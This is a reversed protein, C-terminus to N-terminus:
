VKPPPPLAWEVFYQGDLEIVNDTPALILHTDWRELRPSLGKFAFTRDEIRWFGFGGGPNVEGVLVWVREYPSAGPATLFRQLDLPQAEQEPPHRYVVELANAQDQGPLTGGLYEVLEWTRTGHIGEWLSFDPGGPLIVVTGPPIAQVYRRAQVLWPNKAADALPIIGAGFNYGGLALLLAMTSGRFTRGRVILGRDLGTGLICLMPLLYFLRYFPMQPQFFLFFTFCLVTWWVLVRSIVPPQLRLFLPLHQLGGLLALAGHWLAVGLLAKKALDLAVAEKPWQLFGAYLYDPYVFAAVHSKWVAGLYLRIQAAPGLEEPLQTLYWWRSDHGYSTIWALFEQPTSLGLSVFGFLIYHFLILGFSCTTGIVRWYAPDDLTRSKVWLFYLYLPLMFVMAQHLMVALFVNVAQMVLRKPRFEPDRMALVMVQFALTLRLLAPIYPAHGASYQWATFAIGGLASLQWALPDTFSYRLTRYTFMVLFAGTLACLASQAILGPHAAGLPEAIGRSIWLVLLNYFLHHPHLTERWDLAREALQAYEVGDWYIRASPFCAYLLFFVWFLKWGTEIALLRRLM